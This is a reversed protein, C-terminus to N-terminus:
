PFKGDNHSVMPESDVKELYYLTAGVPAFSLFLINAVPILFLFGFGLHFPLTKILFGFRKAFPQLRRAPVLDTHDWALFVAAVASSLVTVLPGLPTMWGLLFLIGTLVLPIVARPIEQRILFPLQCLFSAGSAEQVEGALLNETIRSMMDMIFVNFLIQSVVYSVLVSVALLILTILWSLLYWLWVLWMSEPRIWMAQM